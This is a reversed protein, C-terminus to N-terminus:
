LNPRYPLAGLHILDPKGLLNGLELAIQGVTVPQGSGVLLRLEASGVQLLYQLSLVIRQLVWSVVLRVSLAVAVAIVPPTPIPCGCLSINDLM